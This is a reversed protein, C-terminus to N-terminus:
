YGTPIGDLMQKAEINDPDVKLISSINKKAELFLGKKLNIKAREMKRAVLRSLFTKNSLDSPSSIESLHKLKDKSDIFQHSSFMNTSLQQQLNKIQSQISLDKYLKLLKSGLEIKESLFGNPLTKYTKLAHEYLVKAKDIDTQRLSSSSDDILTHVQTISEKFDNIFKLDIKDHIKEYLLFIERNLENKEELLFSPFRNRM